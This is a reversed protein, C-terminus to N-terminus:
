SALGTARCASRRRGVVHRPAPVPPYPPAGGARPPPFSAMTPLDLTKARILMQTPMRRPGAPAAARRAPGSLGAGHGGGTLVAAGPAAAGAPGGTGGVDSAGAAPWARGDLARAARLPPM